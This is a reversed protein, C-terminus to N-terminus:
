IIIFLQKDNDSVFATSSKTHKKAKYDCQFRDCPLPHLSRAESCGAISFLAQNNTWRSNHVHNCTSVSIPRTAITSLKFCKHRTVYNGTAKSTKLHSTSHVISTLFISFLTRSLCTSWSNYWTYHLLYPISGQINQALPFTDGLVSSSATRFYM